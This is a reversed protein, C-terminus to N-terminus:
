VRKLLIRFISGKGPTSEKVFLKGKHYNEIIRKALSLGLGWGRSKSTYGPKFISKFRSVPIGKGTDSIDVYAFRTDSSVSIRILGDGAM